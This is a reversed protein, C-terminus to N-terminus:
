GPSYSKRGPTSTSNNQRSEAPSAPLAAFLVMAVGPRRRSRPADHDSRKPPAPSSTVPRPADGNAAAVPPRPFLNQVPCRFGPLVDEGDLEDDERLSGSSGDARYVRVTHNRPNIVWVLRVGAFTNRLGVM